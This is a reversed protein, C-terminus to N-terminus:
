AVRAFVEAVKVDKATLAPVISGAFSVAMGLLPGYILANVPVFFAGLFAIQLKFTGLMQYAMLSSMGGGLLGVLMAEGLVLLMVHRPQYGLVKLVAM